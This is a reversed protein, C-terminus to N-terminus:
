LVQAAGPIKRRAVTAAWSLALTAVLVIFAKIMATMPVVLTLSVNFLAYQLWLM